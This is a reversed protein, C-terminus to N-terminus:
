PDTRWATGLVTGQLALGSGVVGPQQREQPWGLGWWSELWVVPARAVHCRHAPLVRHAPGPMQQARDAVGLRLSWQETPSGWRGGGPAVQLQSGAESVGAEQKGEREREEPGLCLVHEPTLAHQVKGEVPLRQLHHKLCM